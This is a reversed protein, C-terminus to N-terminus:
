HGQAPLAPVPAKRKRERRLKTKYGYKKLREKEKIALRTQGCYVITIPCAPSVLGCVSNLYRQWRDRWVKVRKGCFSTEFRLM